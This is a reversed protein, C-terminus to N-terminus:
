VPRPASETGCAPQATAISVSRRTGNWNRRHAKPARRLRSKAVRRM